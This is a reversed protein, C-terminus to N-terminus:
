AQIKQTYNQVPEDPMVIEYVLLRAGEKLAPILSRLIKVCVQDSYNHMIWRFFYADASLPQVTYFDHAEFDIRGQFGAPLLERGKEVTGPLDQVVIKLNQTARALVQAVGGEGGGVDVLVAGPRDLSAWDYSSVLHKLDWVEGKTFWRMASGFRRAREPHQSIFAYMPLTTDNALNYATETPEGSDPYKALADVIKNYCPDVECTLM